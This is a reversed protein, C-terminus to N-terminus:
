NLSRYEIPTYGVIQKFLRSFHQPYKFGLEYAVQSVSKEPDFIKAKAVDILKGQIYDHASKGTERKILDGFYNASLNIQEAFYGVSPLGILQPKDSEFYDNLLTEFREVVGKNAAERTVFQREYYRVCYNLLLEINSVILQKTHKDIAHQLEKHIKSFCDLLITRESDSVHLAENVEYSFFSYDQIHKALATGKIFDPHFVLVKGQPQYLEEDDFGIVQGPALFVFTGEEYDYYNCGYRMNGCKIEKMLVMYLGIHMKTHKRPAAKSLDVFNVLPHLTQNNNYASYQAVTDFKVMKNEM